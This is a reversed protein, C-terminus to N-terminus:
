RSKSIAVVGEQHPCVAEQNKRRRYYDRWRRAHEQKCAACRCRDKNYASLTGHPYPGTRRRWAPIGMPGRPVEELAPEGIQELYDNLAARLLDTASEGDRLSNLRAADAPTVFVSVRVKTM